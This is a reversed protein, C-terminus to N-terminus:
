AHREQGEIIALFAAVCEQNCSWGKYVAIWLTGGRAGECARLLNSHYRRKGAVESMFRRNKNPYLIDTM